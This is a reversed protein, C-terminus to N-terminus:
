SEENLANLASHLPIKLIYQADSFAKTVEETTGSMATKIIEQLIKEMSMARRLARRRQRKLQLIREPVNKAANEDLLVEQEDLAPNSMKM